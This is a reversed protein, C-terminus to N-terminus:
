IEARGSFSELATVLHFGVARFPEPPIWSAKGFLSPIDPVEQDHALDALLEGFLTGKLVGGGNCGVSAYLGPKIEGWLIGGNMTLGTAGGWVKDLPTDDLQPFRSLLYKQLKRTVIETETEKEYSYSSRVMIRGDRTKRFTSGLRHTPLIGWCDDSGLSDLMSGELPKTIGAYTYIIVLESKGVGLTKSFGNNALIVNRATVTGKPTEILWVPGAKSIATAPTNEFLQIDGRLNRALARILAAPQTMVCDPSYLAEQYFSTGLRQRLAKRDFEEYRLGASELFARYQRLSNRGVSGAAARYLGTRELECDIASDAVERFIKSMTECILQNCKSMRQMQGPRADSALTTEILFGSNRGPTGEGIESADIIAIEDNPALERWRKAAAIGTYGAGIIVVDVSLESSLAHNSRRPPLLANWGCKQLYRPYSSNTM